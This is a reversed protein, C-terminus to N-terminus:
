TTVCEVSFYDDKCFFNTLTKNKKILIIDHSNRSKLCNVISSKTILATDLSMNTICYDEM